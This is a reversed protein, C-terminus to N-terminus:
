HWEYLVSGPDLTSKKLRPLVVARKQSAPLVGSQFSANCLSAMVPAFIDQFQKLLCSKAPMSSLLKSVKSVTVPELTGFPTTDRLQINAPPSSATAARIDAVKRVFFTALDDATFGSSQSTSPPNMLLKLKSWLQKGDGRCEAIASSWYTSYKTQYLSRQNCLQTMWARYDSDAQSRRYVRELRRTTRKLARCEGDYWPSQARQRIVVSRLPVHKDVLQRLVRDYCSFLEDVDDPADSLIDSLSSSSLCLDHRFCEVDLERWCRRVKRVATHPHPLRAALKAVVLSHDSLSPEDVSVSEVSQESRTIVADLTHGQTHTPESVHQLQSHVYNVTSLSTSM